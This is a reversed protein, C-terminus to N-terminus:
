APDLQTTRSHHMRIYQAGNANVRLLIGSESEPKTDIAHAPQHVFEVVYTQKKLVIHPKQFLKLLAM